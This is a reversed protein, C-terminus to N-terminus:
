GYMLLQPSSDYKVLEVPLIALGFCSCEQGNSDKELRFEWSASGSSIGTGLAAFQHDGGTSSVVRGEETVNIGSSFHEFRATPDLM